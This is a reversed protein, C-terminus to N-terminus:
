FTLSLGISFPHLVPGKNDTFMPALYYDFFINTHGYGIRATIGYRFPNINFDDSNKEKKKDGGETYVYKTHAGLKLAGVIGASIFARSSRFNGPFQVELILPVRLFATTLKSKKLNLGSLDVVQITDSIETITIDNDFFYSNFELGMGTVLGLQSTGFGLSYQAFNLNVVWSRGTNLDMFWADGERSVTNEEDLFNNLGWEFGAWHGKFKRRYSPRNKEDDNQKEAISLAEKKYVFGYSDTLPHTDSNFEESFVGFDFTNRQKNLFAILSDLEQGHLVPVFLSIILLFCIKKMM